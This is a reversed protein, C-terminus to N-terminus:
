KVLEANRPSLEPPFSSDDVLRNTPRSRPDSATAVPAAAGFKEVIAFRATEQVLVEVGVLLHGPAVIFYTPVERVTEYERITLSVVADCGRACECAYDTLGPGVSLDETQENEERCVSEDEAARVQRAAFARDIPM